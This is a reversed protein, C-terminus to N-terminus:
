SVKGKRAVSKIWSKKTSAFWQTCCRPIDRWEVKAQEIAEESCSADLVKMGAYLGRGDTAHVYVKM